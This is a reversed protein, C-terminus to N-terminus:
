ELETKWISMYSKIKNKLNLKTQFFFFFLFSIYSIWIATNAGHIGFFVLEKLSSVNIAEFSPLSCLRSYRRSPAQTRWHYTCSDSSKLDPNENAQHWACCHSGSKLNPKKNELNKRLNFYIEFFLINCTFKFLQTPIIIKLNKFHISPM